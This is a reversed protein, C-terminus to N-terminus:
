NDMSCSVTVSYNGEDLDMKGLEMQVTFCQLAGTVLPMM